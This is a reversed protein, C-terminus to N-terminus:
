CGESTHGSDNYGTYFNHYNGHFDHNTLCKPYVFPPFHLVGHAWSLYVHPMSYNYGFSDIPVFNSTWYDGSIQQYKSSYYKKGGQNHNADEIWISGPGSNTISADDWHVEAYMMRCSPVYGLYLTGLTAGYTTKLTTPVSAMIRDSGCSAAQASPASLTVAGAALLTTALVASLKKKLKLRGLPAESRATQLRSDASPQAFPNM